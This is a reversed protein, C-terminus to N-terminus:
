KWPAVIPGFLTKTFFYFGREENPCVKLEESHVM